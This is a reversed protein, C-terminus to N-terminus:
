LAGPDEPSSNRLLREARYPSLDLRALVAPSVISPLVLQYLGAIEESLDTREELAETVLQVGTWAGVVLRSTAGPDAHPLLEGSEKAQNLLDQGVAVWDPWRTGFLRRAKPDVALRIAAHLIPERPVRYALLLGLDVWEQLKFAQPRLGKRTVAEQLVARALDEKSAFHFYLAGRTLGTQEVLAAITAADYGVDNFLSAM